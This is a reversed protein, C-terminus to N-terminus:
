ILYGNACCGGQSRVNDVSYIEVDNSDKLVFKYVVSSSIWIDAEGRANLIIPNSNISQGTADTFTDVPTSSGAIYSYLKGGSLPNGNNDFYQSKLSPLLSFM